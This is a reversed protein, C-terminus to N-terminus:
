EAKRQERRGAWFDLRNIVEREFGRENPKYFEPRNAALEDPFFEQGSFDDAIAKRISRRTAPDLCPTVRSGPDAATWPTAERVQDLPRSM